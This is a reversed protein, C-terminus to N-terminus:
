CVISMAIALRAYTLVLHIRDFSECGHHMWFAPDFSAVNNFTMHGNTLGGVFVHLNNHVQELSQYDAVTGDQDWSTNSFPPYRRMMAFLRYM